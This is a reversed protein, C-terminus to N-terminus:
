TAKRQQSEPLPPYIKRLNAGDIVRDVLGTRLGARPFVRAYDRTMGGRVAVSARLRRLDSVKSAPGTQTSTLM